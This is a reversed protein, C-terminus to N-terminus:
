ETAESPFKRGAAWVEVNTRAHERNLKYKSQVRRVLDGRGKIAALERESFEAWRARLDSVSITPLEAADAGMAPEGPKKM